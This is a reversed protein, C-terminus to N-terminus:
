LFRYFNTRISIYSKIFVSIAAFDYKKQKFKVHHQINTFLYSEFRGPAAAFAALIYILNLGHYDSIKMDSVGRKEGIRLFVQEFM